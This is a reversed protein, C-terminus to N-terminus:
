SLFFTWLNYLTATASLTLESTSMGTSPCTGRMRSSCFFESNLPDITVARQKENENKNIGLVSLSLGIRDHNGDQAEQLSSSPPFRYSPPIRSVLLDKSNM